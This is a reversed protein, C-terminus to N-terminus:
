FMELELKKKLTSGFGLMSDIAWTPDLEHWPAEILVRSLMLTSVFVQKCEFVLKYLLLLELISGKSERLGNVLLFGL